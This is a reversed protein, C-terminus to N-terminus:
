ALQQGPCDFFPRVTVIQALHYLAQSLLVGQDVGLQSGGFEVGSRWSGCGRPCVRQAQPEQRGPTLAHRTVKRWGAVLAAIQPIHEEYHDVVWGVVM